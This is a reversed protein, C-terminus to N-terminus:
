VFECMENLVENYRFFKCGLYNVIEEQRHIDREKLSWDANYHFTEDYEVVINKQPEYYDVFYGPSKDTPLDVM